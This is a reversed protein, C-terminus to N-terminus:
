FLTKQKFSNKLNEKFDDIDKVIILDKKYKEIFNKNFDAVFIKKQQERAYKFTHVTGGKIDTEVIFIFDSLGSQIRNRKIFNNVSINTKPPLESLLFGNNELILEALKINENPYIDTALGQALIAGTQGLTEIHGLTDVGLALGSINFYQEKKFFPSLKKIFNKGNESIKRTGVIAIKKYNELNFNGKTYLVYPARKIKKLRFPYKNDNFFILNIKYKQVDKYINEVKYNLESIAEKKFLELVKNKQIENLIYNEELFFKLDKSSLKFLNINTELSKYFIKYILNPNIYKEYTNLISFKLLEEESYM